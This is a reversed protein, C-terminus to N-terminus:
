RCHRWRRLSVELANADTTGRMAQLIAELAQHAQTDTLNTALVQVAQALHQLANGDSRGRMAQLVAELLREAKTPSPWELGLARTVVHPRAGFRLLNDPVTVLEEVFRDRVANDSGSLLWLANLERATLDNQRFSLDGWIGHALAQNARDLQQGLEEGRKVAVQTQEKASHYFFFAIAAAVAFLLSAAVVGNFLWTRRREERHRADKSAAVYEAESPSLWDGHRGSLNDFLELEAGTALYQDKDKGEGGSWESVKEILRGLGRADVASETIRSQLWPWQTILQEHCIDVTEAGLLLLRSCREESLMKILDRRAGDFEAIRAVRRTAGGTDGLNILRVFVPELLDQQKPDLKKARVEEAAHALAGSIGGVKTYSELLSSGDLKHQKWTEFLAMQILALDGPRDSVDRKIQSILADQEGLDKHGAM